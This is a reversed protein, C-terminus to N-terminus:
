NKVYKYNKKKLDVNFLWIKDVETHSTEEDAPELDQCIQGLKWKFKQEYQEMDTLPRITYLRRFSVQSM